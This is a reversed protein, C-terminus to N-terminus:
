GIVGNTHCRRLAGLYWNHANGELGAILGRIGKGVVYGRCLPCVWFGLGSGSLFVDIEDRVLKRDLGNKKACDPCM